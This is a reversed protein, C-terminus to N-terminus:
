KLLLRAAFGAWMLVATTLDVYGMYKRINQPKVVSNLLAGAQSGVLSGIVIALTIAWDVNERGAVAHRFMGWSASLFVLFLSSGVAKKTDMGVLYIFLPLAVFGGGLGLFGIAAGGAFGVAALNLIPLPEFEDRQPRLVPPIKVFRLLRTFRLGPEGNERRPIRTSEYIFFLGKLVFIVSLGSLLFLQSVRVTRGAVTTVLNPDDLMEVLWAGLEIGACAGIFFVAPVQWVVNGKRWHPVLGFLSTPVMQALSSGVAHAQPVGFILNLSPVVLFGGGIGFFASVGGVFFGLLVIFLDIQMHLIPLTIEM